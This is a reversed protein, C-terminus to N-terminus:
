ADADGAGGGHAPPPGPRAGTVHFENGGADLFEGPERGPRTTELRLRNRGAKPAAPPGMVLSVPSTPTRRLRFGWAQSEVADWGAQPPWFAEQAHRHEEAIDLCVAVLGSDALVGPHGPRLVCFENGEPDALVDWPVDGQGIDARSAGLALLRAVEAEWDPGGALDLHLRNKGAKPTATAVFRLRLGGTRGRTAEQWFREMRVVDLADIVIGTLM